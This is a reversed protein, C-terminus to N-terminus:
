RDCTVEPMVENLEKDTLEALLCLFLSRILDNSPDLNSYLSRTPLWYWYANEMDVSRGFGEFRHSWIYSSLDCLTGCMGFSTVCQEVCSKEEWPIAFLEAAELFLESHKNM